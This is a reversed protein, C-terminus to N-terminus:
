FWSTIFFGSMVLLFIVKLLTGAIFGVFAGIASKFAGKPPKRAILEMSFAGILPGLIIGWFGFVIIGVMLGLFAGFVGYKSAKFKKAGLMPALFDTITILVMLVFFVIVLSISIREFGTGIAYIFFGLWALPIGPLIPVFVGILGALILVSCLIAWLVTNM